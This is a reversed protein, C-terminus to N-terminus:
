KSDLQKTRGINKKYMLRVENFETATAWCQGKEEKEMEKGKAILKTKESRKGFTSWEDDFHLM